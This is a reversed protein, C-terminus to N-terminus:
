CSGCTSFMQRRRRSLDAPHLTTATLNLSPLQLLNGLPLLGRPRRQGAPRATGRRLADCRGAQPKNITASAGVSSLMLALLLLSGHRRRGRCPTTAPPHRPAPSGRVTLCWPHVGRALDGRATGSTSRAATSTSTSRWHAAAATDRAARCSSRTSASACRARRRPRGRGRHRRETIAVSGRFRNTHRRRRAYCRGRRPHRRHSSMPRRATPSGSWCTPARTSRPGCTWTASNSTRPAASVRRRVREAFSAWSSM